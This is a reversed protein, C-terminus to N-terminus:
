TRSPARTRCAMFSTCRTHWPRTGSWAGGARALLVGRGSRALRAQPTAAELLRERLQDALAAGCIRWRCWRITCSAAPLGLFPFAGGPKFHVGAVTHQEATDIVFFESHAGVV